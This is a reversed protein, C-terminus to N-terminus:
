FIFSVKKDYLAENDRSDDPIPAESAFRELAQYHELLVLEIISIKAIQPSVIRVSICLQDAKLGFNPICSGESVTNKLSNIEKYSDDLIRCFTQSPAIIKKLDDFSNFCIIQYRVSDCISAYNSSSM